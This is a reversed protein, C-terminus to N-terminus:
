VLERKLIKGINSKPLEAIWEITHPIKYHALHKQCYEILSKESLDAGAKKVVFAKVAQGSVEDDVGICASELVKLHQNLVQEIECPYVNFGSIIILDKARDVIKIRGLEDFYGMDGSLFYGDKTFIQQNQEQKQWYNQMVQAGKVAIEGVEGNAIEAQSKDLIRVQTKALPQGVSGSFEATDFSEASVVPSCETLGYGQM